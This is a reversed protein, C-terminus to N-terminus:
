LRLKLLIPLHDSAGGTFKIGRITRKVRKGIFKKDSEFLVDPAYVSMQAFPELSYSIIFQDIASWVGNYKHTGYGFSHKTGNFTLNKFNTLNAIAKSDPSDNFDGMIIIKSSPQESLISETYEKLCDSIFMRKQLSYKEGGIKSPWHNVFIHLTDNSKQSVGRAYLIYRTIVNNKKMKEVDPFFEYELVKFSSERYLLAVDIGRKDPSDKHIINYDAHYLPTNKILQQLVFLNEIESVGVIDPLNGESDETSIIVKSILNRKAVFKKWTWHKEGKPSYEEAGNASIPDFFNELNWFMILFLLIKM